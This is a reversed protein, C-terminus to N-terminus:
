GERKLERSNRERRDGCNVSRLLCEVRRLIFAASRYRRPRSLRGDTVNVLKRGAAKTECIPLVQHDVSSRRIVLSM